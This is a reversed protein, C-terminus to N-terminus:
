HVLEPQWLKDLMVSEEATPDLELACCLLFFMVQEGLSIGDRPSVKYYTRVLANAEISALAEASIIVVNHHDPFYSRALLFEESWRLDKACKM